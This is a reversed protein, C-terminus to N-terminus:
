CTFSRIGLFNQRTEHTEIEVLTERVAIVRRGKPEKMQPLPFLTFFAFPGNRRIAEREHASYSATKPAPLGLHTFRRDWFAPGVSPMGTAKLVTDISISDYGSRAQLFSTHRFEFNDPPIRFRHLVSRPPVTEFSTAVM